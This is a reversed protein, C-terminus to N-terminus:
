YTLHRIAHTPETDLFAAKVVPHPPNWLKCMAYQSVSFRHTSKFTAGGSFGFHFLVKCRLLGACWVVQKQSPVLQCHLLMDVIKDRGSSAAKHLCTNGEQTSMHLLLFSTNREVLAGCGWSMHISTQYEINAVIKLFYKTNRIDQSALPATGTDTHISEFVTRYWRSQGKNRRLARWVNADPLM